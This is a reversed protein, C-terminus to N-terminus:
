DENRGHGLFQRVAAAAEEKRTEPNHRGGGRAKAVTDLFEAETMAALDEIISDRRFKDVM